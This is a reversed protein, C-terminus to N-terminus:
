RSRGGGGNAAPQMVLGSALGLVKCVSFFEPSVVVVCCNVIYTELLHRLGDATRWVARLAVAGM